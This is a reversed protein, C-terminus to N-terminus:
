ALFAHVTWAILVLLYFGIAVRAPVDWAIFRQLLVFQPLTFVIGIVGLWPGLPNGFLLLGIMLACSQWWAFPITFFVGELVRQKPTEPKWRDNPFPGMGCGKVYMVYGAWEHGIAMLAFLGISVLLALDYPDRPM